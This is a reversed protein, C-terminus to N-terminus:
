HGGIKLLQEIKWKKLSRLVKPSNNQLIDRFKFKDSTKEHNSHSSNISNQGSSWLFVNADRETCKDFLVHPWYSPRIVQFTLSSWNTINADASNRM